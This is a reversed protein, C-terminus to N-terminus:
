TGLHVVTVGKTRVAWSADSVVGVSRIHGREAMRVALRLLGTRQRPDLGRDFNDTLLTLAQMASPVEGATDLDLVGPGTLMVLALAIYRLEGYGLRALETGTGDGRDLVARVTGDSLPEARLDTVPGCCGADLAAVLQAHRRVCEERTRWLVDALNDCGGLLRGSGTPVPAGMWEPQPDCPFVSRLAVVMQE